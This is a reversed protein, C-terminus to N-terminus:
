WKGLRMPFLNVGSGLFEPTQHNEREVMTRFKAMEEPELFGSQDLDESVDVVNKEVYDVLLRLFDTTGRGTAAYSSQDLSASFLVATNSTLSGLREAPGRTLPMAAPVNPLGTRCADVLLIKQAQRPVQGANLRNIMERVPIASEKLDAARVQAYIDVPLVFEDKGNHTGHGALYLILTSKVTYRQGVFNGVASFIRGRTLDAGNTIIRIQEQPVGMNCHALQRLLAEQRTLPLAELQRDRYQAIIFGLFHRNPDTNVNPCAATDSSADTSASVTPGSRSGGPPPTLDVDFSIVEATATGVGLLLALVVGGFLGLWTVHM